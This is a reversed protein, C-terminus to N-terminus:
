PQFRHGGDSTTCVLNGHREAKGGMVRGAEAVDIWQAIDAGWTSALRMLANQEGVAALLLLTDWHLPGGTPLDRL